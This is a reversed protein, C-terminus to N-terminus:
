PRPRLQPPRAHHGPVLRGAGRSVAPPTGAERCRGIYNWYEDFDIPWVYSDFSVVRKAGREEATFSFFGDWAGVDLVTKGTLDPLQLCALEHALTEPSKYGKTVVGGFRHLAM